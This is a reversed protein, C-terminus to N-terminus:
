LELIDKILKNKIIEYFTIEVSGIKKTIYRIKLHSIRSCMVQSFTDLRGEEIKSNPIPVLYENKERSSTIGLGIFIDSNVHFSTKSIVLVPRPYDVEQDLYEPPIIVIDRFDIESASVV